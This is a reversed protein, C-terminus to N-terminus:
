WKWTIEVSWAPLVAVEASPVKVVLAGGLVEDPPLPWWQPDPM